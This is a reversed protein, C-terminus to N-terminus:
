SCSGGKGTFPKDLEPFITGVEIAKELDYTHEFHQWPVYAMAIPPHGTFDTMGTMGYPQKAAYGRSNGRTLEAAYGRGNESPRNVSGRMGNDAPM